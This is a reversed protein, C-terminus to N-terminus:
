VPAKLSKNIWEAITRQANAATLEANITRGYALVKDKLDHAARNASPWNGKRYEELTWAQLNRMPAHRKEAGQKGIAVFDFGATLMAEEETLKIGLQARQAFSLAQYSLLLYPSRHATIDSKSSKKVSQDDDGLARELPPGYSNMKESILWQGYAAFQEVDSCSPKLNSPIMKGDDDFYRGHKDAFCEPILGNNKSLWGAQHLLPYRALEDGFENELPLEVLRFHWERGITRWLRFAFSDTPLLQRFAHNLFYTHSAHHIHNM